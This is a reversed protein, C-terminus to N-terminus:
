ASLASLSNRIGASRRYVLDLIEKWHHVRLVHAPLRGQNYSCDILAVNFGAGALQIANDLCDEIFLDCQLQRAKWIKNPDGLLALSDYPMRYRNLWEETVSRMREERASVFHIAHQQSHLMTLIERAGPLPAAEKHVLAGYTNYFERYATEPVNMVRHIAYENVHEPRVAMGFYDNARALWYLPDTVTGDIDVCLNM